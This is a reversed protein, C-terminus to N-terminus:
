HTNHKGGSLYSIYTIVAKLESLGFYVNEFSSLFNTKGSTARTNAMDRTKSDEKKRKKKRENKEKKRVM